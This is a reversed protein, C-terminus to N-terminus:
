RTLAIIIIKQDLSPFFNKRFFFFFPPSVDSEPYYFILGETALPSVM